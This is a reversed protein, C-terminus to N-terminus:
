CFRGALNKELGRTIKGSNNRTYNAYDEAKLQPFDEDSLPTYQALQKALQEDSLGRKRSYGTHFKHGVQERVLSEVQQQLWIQLTVGKKTLLSEAEYVLQDDLVFSYTCM